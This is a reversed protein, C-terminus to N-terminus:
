CYIQALRLAQDIAGQNTTHGFKKKINDILYNIETPNGRVAYLKKSRTIKRKNAKKKVSQKSSDKVSQKSDDEKGEWIETHNDTINRKYPKVNKYIDRKGM